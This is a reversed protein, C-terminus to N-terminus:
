ITHRSAQIKKANRERRLYHIEECIVSCIVLWRTGVIQRNMQRYASHQMCNVRNIWKKKRWEVGVELMFLYWMVRELHRVSLWCMEGWVGQVSLLLILSDVNICIQSHWGKRLSGHCMKILPATFWVIPFLGSGIGIHSKPALVVVHCCTPWLELVVTQNSPFLALALALWTSWQVAM